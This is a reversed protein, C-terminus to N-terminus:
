RESGKKLLYYDVVDNLTRLERPDGFSQRKIFPRLDDQPYHSIESSAVAVLQRRVDGPFAQSKGQVM